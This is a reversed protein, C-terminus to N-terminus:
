YYTAKEIWGAQRKISGTVADTVEPSTARMM